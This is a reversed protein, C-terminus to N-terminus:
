KMVCLYADSHANMSVRLYLQSADTYSKACGITFSMNKNTSENLRMLDGNCGINKNSATLLYRNKTVFGITEFPKNLYGIFFNKFKDTTFEEDTIIRYVDPLPGRLNCVYLKDYIPTLPLSKPPMFLALGKAELLYIYEADKLLNLPKIKTVLDHINILDFKIECTLGFAFPDISLFKSLVFALNVETASDLHIGETKLLKEIMVFSFIPVLDLVKEIPITKFTEILKGFSTDVMFSNETRIAKKLVLLLEDTSEFVINAAIDAMLTDLQLFTVFDNFAVLQNRPIELKGMYMYNRILAFKDFDDANLFHTRTRGSEALMAYFNKSHLEIIKEHIFHNNDTGYKGIIIRYIISKGNMLHACVKEPIAPNNLTFM